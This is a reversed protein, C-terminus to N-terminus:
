SGDLGLGGPVTAARLTSHPQPRRVSYVNSLDKKEWHPSTSAPYNTMECRELRASKRRISGAAWPFRLMATPRIRLPVCGVSRGTCSTVFISIAMLIL